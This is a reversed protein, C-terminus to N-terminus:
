RKHYTSYITPNATSNLVELDVFRLLRPLRSLRRLSDSGRLRYMGQLSAEPGFIVTHARASPSRIKGKCCYPRSCPLEPRQDLWIHYLLRNQVADLLDGKIRGQSLLVFAHSRFIITMEDNPFEQVVKGKM